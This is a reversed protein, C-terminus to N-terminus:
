KGLAEEETLDKEREVPMKLRAELMRERDRAQVRESKLFSARQGNGRSL